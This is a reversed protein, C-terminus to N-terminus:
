ALGSATGIWNRELLMRVETAKPSALAELIAVADRWCRCAADTRGDAYLAAGLKTLTIGEGHRDGTERM